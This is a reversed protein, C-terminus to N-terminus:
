MAEGRARRESRWDKEVTIKMAVTVDFNTAETEQGTEEGCKQLLDTWRMLPTGIDMRLIQKCIIIIGNKSQSSNLWM